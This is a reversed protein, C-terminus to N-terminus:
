IDLDFILDNKFEAHVEDGSETEKSDKVPVESRKQKNCKRKHSSNTSNNRSSEIEINDTKHNEPPKNVNLIPRVADSQDSELAIKAEVKYKDRDDTESNESESM